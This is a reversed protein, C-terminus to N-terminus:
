PVRRENTVETPTALTTGPASMAPPPLLAALHWGQRDAERILQIVERADSEEAPLYNIAVDAGERTMKGALGPWPQTQEQFPPKPYKKLPDEKAVTGAPRGASSANEQAM